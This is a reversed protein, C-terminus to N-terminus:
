TYAALSITYRQLNMTVTKYMRILLLIATVPLVFLGNSYLFKQISVPNQVQRWM